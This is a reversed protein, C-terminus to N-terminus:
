FPLGATKKGIYKFYYLTKKKGETAKNRVLRKPKCNNKEAMRALAIRVEAPTARIAGSVLTDIEEWSLTGNLDFEFNNSIFDEVGSTYMFDQINEMVSELEERSFNLDDQESKLVIDFVQAWFQFADLESFFKPNMPKTLTMPLYRTELVDRLLDPKNSSGIFVCTKPININNTKHLVRLSVSEQSIMSRIKGKTKEKMLMEQIDDLNLIFTQSLDIGMKRPDDPLEAAWEEFLEINIDAGADRFFQPLVGELGLKRLATTKYFNRGMSVLIPVVKNWIRKSKLHPDSYRFTFSLANIFWKRMFPELEKEINLNSVVSTLRDKGDWKTKSLQHHLIDIASIKRLRPSGLIRKLEATSKYQADRVMSIFDETGIPCGFMITGDPNKPFLYGHNEMIVYNDAIRQTVVMDPIVYVVKGKPSIEKCDEFDFKLTNSYKVIETQTRAVAKPDILKALSLSDNAMLFANADKQEGFDVRVIDADGFDGKLSEALKDGAEDNDVAIYVKKVKRFFFYYEEYMESSQAGNPVSIVNDFGAEIFSLADIEGETIIITDKGNISDINYPVSESGIPESFFKKEFTTRFKKRIFKGKKYFNFIIKKAEGGVKAKVLTEVSIGRGGLYEKVKDSILDAPNKKPGELPKYTHLQMVEGCHFCKASARDWDVNVCEKKQNEPKRGASCKPCTSKEVGEEFKFVNYEDIELNKEDMFEKTRTSLGIIKMSGDRIIKTM